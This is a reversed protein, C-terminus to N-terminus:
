PCSVELFSGLSVLRAVEAPHTQYEPSFAQAYQSRRAQLPRAPYQRSAALTRVRYPSGCTARYYRTTEM